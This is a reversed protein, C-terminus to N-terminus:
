VREGFNQQQATPRSAVASYPGWGRAQLDLAIERALDLDPTHTLIIDILQEGYYNLTM